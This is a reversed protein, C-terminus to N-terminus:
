MQQLVATARRRVEADLELLQEISGVAEPEYYQMTTAVTQEIALFTISGNLFAAVAV